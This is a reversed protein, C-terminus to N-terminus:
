ATNAVCCSLPLRPAGPLGTALMPKVSTLWYGSGGDPGVGPGPLGLERQVHGVEDAADPQDVLDLPQERDPRHAAAPLAAPPHPPHWGSAKAGEEPKEASRQHQDIAVSSSGIVLTVRPSSGNLYKADVLASRSCPRSWRSGNPWWWSTTPLPSLTTASCSAYRPATGTGSMHPGCAAVSGFGEGEDRAHTEDVEALRLVRVATVEIVAVPQDASDIVVARDGISPLPAGDLEYEMALSTTTTKAGTLIASVLQDRLLGPFAFYARPLDGISM